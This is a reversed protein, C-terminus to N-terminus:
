AAAGMAEAVAARPDDGLEIGLVRLGDRLRRLHADLRFVRGGYARMTEFLGDALTFGRDLASLSPADPAAPRGNVFLLSSSGSRVAQPLEDGTGRGGDRTKM